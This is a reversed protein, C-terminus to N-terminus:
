ANGLISPNRLDGTQVASKGHVDLEILTQALCDDLASFDPKAAAELLAEWSAGGGHLPASADWAARNAETYFRTIKMM